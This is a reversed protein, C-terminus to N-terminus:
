LGRGELGWSFLATSSHSSPRAAEDPLEFHQVRAPRGGIEHSLPPGLERVPPDARLESPKPPVTDKALEVVARERRRLICFSIALGSLVVFVV